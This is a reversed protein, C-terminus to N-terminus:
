VSNYLACATIKIAFSTSYFIKGVMVLDDIKLWTNSINGYDTTYGKYCYSALM